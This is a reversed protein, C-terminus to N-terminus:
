YSNFRRNYRKADDAPLLDFCEDRLTGEWHCALTRCSYRRVPMLASVLHDMLRRPVRNVAGGCRPCAPRSLGEGAASSLPQHPM